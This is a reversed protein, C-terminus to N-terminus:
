DSEFAGGSRSLDPDCSAQFPCHLCSMAHNTPNTLEKMRVPYQTAPVNFTKIFQGIM